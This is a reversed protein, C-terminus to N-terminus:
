IKMKVRGPLPLWSDPKVVPSLFKKMERQCRNTLGPIEIKKGGVTGKNWRLFEKAAGSFDGANLKKLLTSEKFQRDGINFHKSVLADLQNQNVPVKLHDIVERTHRKLDDEFLKEAQKQTVQDGVKVGKTHGYGITSVGSPCKYSKLKCGELQKIFEAGEKSVMMEQQKSNGCLTASRASDYAALIPKNTTSKEPIAEKSASESAMPTTPAINQTKSKKPVLFDLSAELEFNNVNGKATGSFVRGEKEKHTSVVISIGSTDNYTEDASHQVNIPNESERATFSALEKISANRGAHASADVYGFPTPVVGGPILKASVGVGIGFSHDSTQTHCASTHVIVDEPVGDVSDVSVQANKVNLTTKSNTLTLRGLNVKTHEIEEQKTQSNSCTVGVHVSASGLGLSAGANVGM